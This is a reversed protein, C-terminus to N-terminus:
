QREALAQGCPTAAPHGRALGVLLRLCDDTAPTVGVAGSVDGAVASDGAGRHDRDRAAGPTQSFALCGFASLTTACCVALSLLTRSREERDPAPRNFFLAYNLGIGVVLLLAVLNFLSLRIGAALLIAVDLVLAALVPVLVRAARAPSRLGWALLAAIGLLGLAVLRLSEDRYSNVLDNSEARSTSCSTAQRASGRRRAGRAAERRAAAGARGLRRRERM